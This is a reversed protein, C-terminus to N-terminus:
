EDTDSDLNYLLDDLPVESTEPAGHPKILFIYGGRTRKVLMLLKGAESRLEYLNEEICILM